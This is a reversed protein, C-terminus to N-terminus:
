VWLMERSYLKNMLFVHELLAGNLIRKNFAASDPISQMYLARMQQAQGKSSKKIKKVHELVGYLSDAAHTKTIEGDLYRRLHQNFLCVLLVDTVHETKKYPSKKALYTSQFGYYRKDQISTISVANRLNLFGSISEAISNSVDSIEYRPDHDFHSVKFGTMDKFTDFAVQIDSKTAMKLLLGLDYIQKAVETQRTQKLGITGLAMTTIKDGLLSGKSLIRMDCITDFGFLTFGSKVLHSSLRINVDCLFDVKVFQTGGLCSNYYVKYSILNDLPYPNKPILEDCRVNTVADNIRRMVHRIEGVTRPTLLDIDISLRRAETTPLYFPMCMGGRTICDTQQTIHSHMEFDIIFKEVPLKDTFGYRKAISSINEETM